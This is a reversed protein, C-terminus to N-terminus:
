WKERSNVRSRNYCVNKYKMSTEIPQSILMMLETVCICLSSYMYFWVNWTWWVFSSFGPLPARSGATNNLMIQGGNLSYAYHSSEAESDTYQYANFSSNQNQWQSQSIDHSPGAAAAAGYPHMSVPDPRAPIYPVRIADSFPPPPPSAPPPPPLPLDISDDDSAEDSAQLHSIFCITSTFKLFTIHLRIM